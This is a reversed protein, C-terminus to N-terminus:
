EGKKLTMGLVLLIASVIIGGALVVAQIKERVFPIVIMSIITAKSLDYFYKSLDNRNREFLNM